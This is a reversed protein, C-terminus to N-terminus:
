GEGSQWDGRLDGTGVHIGRSRDVERGVSLGIVVEAEFGHLVAAIQVRHLEKLVNAIAMGIRGHGREGIQGDGVSIKRLVFEHLCHLAIAIEDLQTGVM